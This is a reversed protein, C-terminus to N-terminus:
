KEWRSDYGSSVCITQSTEIKAGGGGFSFVASFIAREVKMTKETNANVGQQCYCGPEECSRAAWADPTTAPPPIPWIKGGNCRL